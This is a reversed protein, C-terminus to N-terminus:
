AAERQQFSGPPFPLAAKTRITANAVGLSLFLGTSVVQKLLATNWFTRLLPSVRSQYPVLATPRRLRLFDWIGAGLRLIHFDRVCEVTSISPQWVETGNVDLM